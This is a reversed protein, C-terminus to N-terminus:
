VDIFEAVDGGSVGDVRRGRVMRDARIDRQSIKRMGSRRLGHQRDPSRGEQSSKVEMGSHLQQGERLPQLAKRRQSQQKRREERPLEVLQRDQPARSRRPSGNQLTDESGLRHHHLNRATSPAEPAPIARATKVPVTEKARRHFNLFPIGLVKKQARSQHSSQDVVKHGEPSLSEAESGHGHGIYHGKDPSNKKKQSAVPMDAALGQSLRMERCRARALPNKTLRRGVRLYTRKFGTLPRRITVLPKNRQLNIAFPHRRKAVFPSSALMTALPLRQDLELSPRRINEELRLITPSPMNPNSQISEDSQHKHIRTGESLRPSLDDMSKELRTLSRHSGLITTTKELMSPRQESLITTTGPHIIKEPHYPDPPTFPVIHSRDLHTSIVRQGKYREGLLGEHDQHRTDFPLFSIGTV